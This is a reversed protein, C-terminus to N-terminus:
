SAPFHKKAQKGWHLKFNHVVVNWRQPAMPSFSVTRITGDNLPVTFIIKDGSIHGDGQGIVNVAANDSLFITNGSWIGEVNSYQVEYGQTTGDAYIFQLFGSLHDGIHTLRLYSVFKSQACCYGGSPADAHVISSPLLCLILACFALRLPM